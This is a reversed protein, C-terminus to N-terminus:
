GSVLFDEAVSDGSADPAYLGHLNGGGWAYDDDVRMRCTAMFFYSIRWKTFWLQILLLRLSHSARSLCLLGLAQQSTGAFGGCARVSGAGARM